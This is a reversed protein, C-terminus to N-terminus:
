KRAGPDDKTGGTSEDKKENGKLIAAIILPGFAFPALFTSIFGRGVTTAEILWAVAMVSGIVQLTTRLSKNSM